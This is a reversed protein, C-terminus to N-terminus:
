IAVIRKLRPFRRVIRERLRLPVFIQMGADWVQLFASHDILWLAVGYVSMAAFVIEALLWWENEPGLTRVWLAVLGMLGAALASPALALLTDKVPLRLIRWTVGLYALATLSRVIALSAAVGVIGGWVSLGFWTAGIFLPLQVLNMRLRIYPRGSASMAANGLLTLSDFLQFAVYARFVPVAGSWQSGFALRIMLDAIVLAGIHMPASTSATLRLMALYTRRFEEIRDQVKALAPLTVQAVVGAVSLTAFSSNDEGFAYLGLSGEGLTGVAANDMKNMLFTLLESGWLSRAFRFVDAFARRSPRLIPRFRTALWVATLWFVSGYVAPLILSWPGFGLVSFTIWGAFALLQYVTQFGEYLHFRMQKVLIAGPVTALSFLIFALMTVQTLPVAEQSHYFRGFFPALFMMGVAAPLGLGVLLWFAASPHEAEEQYYVVAHGIPVRILQYLGEYVLLALSAAGLADPTLFRAYVLVGITGVVSTVVQRIASWRLGREIAPDLAHFQPSAPEIESPSVM